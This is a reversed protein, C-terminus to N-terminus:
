VIEPIISNDGLSQKSQLAREVLILINDEYHLPFYPNGFM